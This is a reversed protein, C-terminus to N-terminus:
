TTLLKREDLGLGRLSISSVLLGPRFRFFASLFNLCECGVAKPLSPHEPNEQRIKRKQIKKPWRRWVGSSEKGANIFILRSISGPQSAVRVNKNSM